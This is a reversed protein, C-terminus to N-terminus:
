ILNFCSKITPDRSIEYCINEPLAKATTTGIVLVRSKEHISNNKLFCKVSSPSTFILIADEEVKVNQISSSCESEYLICEDIDYGDKKADQSFSSAIVKARLYLWRTSKSYQKIKSILTDGYGSGIDLVKGGIKEYSTATAESICLAPKLIDKSYQELAISSQKSTIIFYDYRGFDIEPKLLTIDLSNVSIADPHSSTSFLYVKKSM